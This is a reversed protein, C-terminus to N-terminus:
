FEFSQTPKSALDIIQDFEEPSLDNYFFNVPDIRKNNKWVEYHLHPATSGGTNGVEGLVDGRNVEQGVKVSIKDLHAYLTKYSYGHAVEVYTGYGKRKRSLHCKVVKGKGTAYIKTGTPATFDVGYHMKRRKYIPHMRMGFGSSLRKLDSNSIPQIAPISALMDEKDKVMQALNDYSKSQIYLQKGLKEIKEAVAKLAEGNSLNDLYKWRDGGGFGAERVSRPIPEAEFIARYINDDRDRLEELVVSYTLLKQSMNDVHSNMQTLERKMQKEKPSDIYRFAFAVIISAFVITACLFGFVRLLKTQWSTEVKEYRLSSTNYYYKDKTM